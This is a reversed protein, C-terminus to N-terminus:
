NFILKKKITFLYLYSWFFNEELIELFIFRSKGLVFYIKKLVLVFAGM